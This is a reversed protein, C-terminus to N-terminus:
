TFNTEKLIIYSKITNYDKNFKFHVNEVLKIIVFCGVSTLAM